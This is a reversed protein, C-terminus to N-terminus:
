TQLTALMAVEEVLVQNTGRESDVEGVKAVKM